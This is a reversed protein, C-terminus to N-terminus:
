IIFVNESQTSLRIYVTQGKNKNVLRDKRRKVEEEVEPKMIAVAEKLISTISINISEKLAIDKPEIVGEFIQKFKMEYRKPASNPKQNYKYLLRQRHTNDKLKYIADIMKNPEKLNQYCPQYLIIGVLLLRGYNSEDNEVRILIYVPRNFGYEFKGNIQYIKHNIKLDSKNAMLNFECSQEISNITVHHGLESFCDDILKLTNENIQQKIIEKEENSRSIKEIDDLNERINITSKTIDDLCNTAADKPLLCKTLTDKIIKISSIELRKKWNKSLMNRTMQILEPPFKDSNISPMDEKIAIVLNAFPEIDGFLEKGMILDHLVAGIQYINLARWGDENNEEKRMLFEPSAYRLTGLFQKKGDDTMSPNGVIKLVGLDMLIIEGKQSVMINEPKVDRHVLPPISLLLNETTDILINIIKVLFETEIRNREIYKKLNVGEVYDMILYLYEKDNIKTSGGNIIKILNNIGHNKLTLELEIRKQQIEVGYNDILENDFIKVAYPIMDKFGCFVAASKGNDKFSNIKVGDIEKDRLEELLKLAKTKNM